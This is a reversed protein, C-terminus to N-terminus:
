AEGFQMATKKLFAISSIMEETIKTRSEQALCQGGPTLLVAFVVDPFVTGIERLKERIQQTLKSSSGCIGMRGPGARSLTAFLWGLDSVSRGISYFCATYSDGVVGIRGHADRCKSSQHSIVAFIFREHTACGNQSVQDRQSCPKGKCNGIRTIERRNAESARDRSGGM